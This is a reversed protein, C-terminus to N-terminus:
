RYYAPLRETQTFGALWMRLVWNGPPPALVHWFILMFPTQLNPALHKINHEACIHSWFLWLNFMISATCLRFAQNVFWRLIKVDQAIRAPRRVLIPFTIGRTTEGFLFRFNAEICNQPITPVRLVVFGTQVAWLSLRTCNRSFTGSRHYAKIANCRQWVFNCGVGFRITDDVIEESSQKDDFM